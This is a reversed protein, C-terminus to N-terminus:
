HTFLVKASCHMFTILAYLTVASEKPYNIANIFNFIWAERAPWALRTGMPLLHGLSGPHKPQSQRNNWAAALMETYRPFVRHHGKQWWRTCNGQLRNYLQNWAFNFLHHLRRSLVRPDPQLPSRPTFLSHSTAWAQSDMTHNLGKGSGQVHPTHQTHHLLASKLAEPKQCTCCQFVKNKYGNCQILTWKKPSIKDRQKIPLACFAMMHHGKHHAFNIIIISKQFNIKLEVWLRLWALTDSVWHLEATM